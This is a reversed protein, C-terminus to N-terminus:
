LEQKAKRHRRVARYLLFAQVLIICMGVADFKLQGANRYIFNHFAGDPDSYYMTNHYQSEILTSLIATNLVISFSLLIRTFLSYSVSGMWFSYISLLFAVIILIALFELMAQAAPPILPLMAYLYHVIKYKSFPLLCGKRLALVIYWSSFTWGFM